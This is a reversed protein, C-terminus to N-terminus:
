PKNSGWGCRTCYAEPRHDLDRNARFRQPVLTTLLTEISPSEDCSDFEKNCVPCGYPQGEYYRQVGYNSKGM